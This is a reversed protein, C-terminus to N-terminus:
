AQLIWMDMMRLGPPQCKSMERQFFASLINRHCLYLRMVQVEYTQTGQFHHLTLLQVEEYLLPDTAAQVTEIV